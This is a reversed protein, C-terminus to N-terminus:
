ELGIHTHLSNIINSCVSLKKVRLNSTKEGLVFSIADMLNSKGAVYLFAFMVCRLSTISVKMWVDCFLFVSSDLIDSHHMSFIIVFVHM